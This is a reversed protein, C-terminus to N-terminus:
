CNEGPAFAGSKCKGWRLRRKPSNTVVTLDKFQALLPIIQAATSSADLFIMMGDHVHKVAQQAIQKKAQVNQTRRYQMSVEPEAADNFVAGGFTCRIKGMSELNALDRRISSESIAFEKALRHVTASQNNQLFELLRKHRESYFM